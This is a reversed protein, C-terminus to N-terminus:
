WSIRYFPWDDMLQINKTMKHLGITPDTLIPMKSLTLHPSGKPGIRATALAGLQRGAGTSQKDVSRHKRADEPFDRSPGELFGDSLLEVACLTSHKRKNQRAHPTGIFIDIGKATSPSPLGSCNSVTNTQPAYHPTLTDNCPRRVKFTSGQM